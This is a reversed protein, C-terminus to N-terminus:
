IDPSAMASKFVACHFTRHLSGFNLVLSSFHLPTSQINRGMPQRVKFSSLLILDELDMTRSLVTAASFSALLQAPLVCRPLMAAACRLVPATRRTALWTAAALVGLHGQGSADGGSAGVNFVRPPWSGVVEIEDDDDILLMLWILRSLSLSLSCIALSIACLSRLICCPVACVLTAPSSSISRVPKWLPVGSSAPLIASECGTSRKAGKGECCCCCCCSSSSSSSASAPFLLTM